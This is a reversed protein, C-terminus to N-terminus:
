SISIQHWHVELSICVSNSIILARQSILVSLLTIKKELTLLAPKFSITNPKIGKRSSCSLIHINSILSPLKKTAAQVSLYPSYAWCMKHICTDPHLPSIRNTGLQSFPQIMFETSILPDLPVGLMCICIWLFNPGQIRTSLSIVTKTSTSEFTFPSFNTENM